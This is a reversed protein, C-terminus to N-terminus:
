NYARVDYCCLLDDHRLYLRGKHIVPHAWAPGKGVPPRFRGKVRFEEPSAEVLLVDGRDYRFIVHGDAYLVSASGRAPARSKWCIRGTALEICVPDGRNAGHGGYLYEGALVVGGHHNLFERPGLFYMEEARFGEGERKVELLASGTNYATTVFVHNGRVVPATINAVNNAIRNYGWLFRGTEAEVGIVGRGILQVYQRVGGIEAVVASSYAAGDAGKDGLEPLVAKWITTGTRKDLAVMVADAAGPTCVLRDGDILPSESFKWGSMMRGGFDTTLNKQWRVAGTASRLCMLDGETGLAYLLEGDVTPTCRPGTNFPAGVRTAWLERRNELDCAIVFQAEQGGGPGSPRARGPARDGMTFIRGGAISISSLGRGLGELSWLLRPGGEPWQSLLGRERCISDRCPGHFQSWDTTMPSTDLGAEVGPGLKVRESVTRRGADGAYKEPDIQGLIGALRAQNAPSERQMAEVLVPVAERADAGMAGFLFAVRIRLSANDRFTEILAPVAKEGISALAGMAGERVWPQEHDLQAILAPTAALADPGLAALADAAAVKTEHDENRVAQSLAAVINDLNESKEADAVQSLWYSLPKGLFLPASSAQAQADASADPRGTAQGAAPAGSLGFGLALALLSLSQMKLIVM